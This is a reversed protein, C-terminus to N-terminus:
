SIFGKFDSLLVVRTNLLVLSSLLSGKVFYDVEYVVVLPGYESSHM